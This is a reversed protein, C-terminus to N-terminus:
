LCGSLRVGLSILAFVESIVMHGCGQCVSTKFPSSEPVQLCLAHLLPERLLMLYSFVKQVILFLELGLQLFSMHGQPSRCCFHCLCSEFGAGGTCNVALVEGRTYPHSTFNSLM